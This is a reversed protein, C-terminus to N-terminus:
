VYQFTPYSIETYGDSNVRTIAIPVPINDAAAIVIQTTTGPITATAGETAVTATIERLTSEDAEETSEQVLKESPVQYDLIRHKKNPKEGINHQKLLHGKLKDYRTSTFSCHDCKYPRNNTHLLMHRKLNKILSFSQSCVPCVHPKEHTHTLMHYKLNQQKLAQFTCGQMSCKFTEGTHILRHAKLQSKHATAYGCIDCLHDKTDSHVVMHSKLAHKWKFGAFCKTCVFPKEESHKPMHQNLQTRTKFKMDCLYCFYPHEGSHRSLHLTLEEANTAKYECYSCQLDAHLHIRKHDNLTKLRNAKYDCKNCSYKGDQHIKQHRKFHNYNYTSYLCEDCIYVEITVNNNTTTGNNQTQGNNNTTSTVRSKVKGKKRHYPRGRTHKKGLRIRLSSRVAGSCQGSDKAPDSEGTVDPDVKEETEMTEEEETITESVTAVTTTKQVSSSILAGPDALTVSDAAVEALLKTTTNTEPGEEDLLSDISEATQENKANDEEDNKVVSAEALAVNSDCGETAISEKSNASTFFNTQTMQDKSVNMASSESPFASDDDLGYTHDVSKMGTADEGTAPISFEEVNEPLKPQGNRYRECYELITNLQMIKAIEIVQTLVSPSIEICSTYMFDVLKRVALGYGIKSENSGEIHIEIIQPLKQSFARPLDQLTGLFSAFYPSAAALVNSHAFIEEGCVKLVVDCFRCVKRQEQLAKMVNNILQGDTFKTTPEEEESAM